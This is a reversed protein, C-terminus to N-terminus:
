STWKILHEKYVEIEARSKGIIGQVGFDQVNMAALVTGYRVAERIVQHNIIPHNALYAMFAGAFCDGAGTPDKVKTVPYAPAFFLNSSSVAVSGYEGRKIIVWEPGITLIEKAAEFVDKKGTYERLEDENMFVIDVRKIVQELEDKCLSIWYNMTDCALHHYSNIQNLVQLQLRPHINALLLCKCCLYSEPLEPSFDAFVNLETNLTEARNWNTYKGSWRFTKGEKFDLGELNIGHEELLQLGSAPYDSGLVGVIHTPCFSSAALSGYIASGGLTDQVEGEPTSVTDLAISGVIVLSM